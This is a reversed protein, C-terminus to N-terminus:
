KQTQGKSGLMGICGFTIPQACACLFLCRIKKAEAQMHLYMTVHNGGVDTVPQKQCDSRTKQHAPCQPTKPFEIKFSVVSLALRALILTRDCCGRWDLVDLKKGTRVIKKRCTATTLPSTQSDM